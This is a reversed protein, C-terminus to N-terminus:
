KIMYNYIGTYQHFVRRGFFLLGFIFKSVWIEANQNGLYSRDVSRGFDVIEGELAIRFGGIKGSRRRRPPDIMPFFQFRLFVLGEGIIGVLKKRPLGKEV